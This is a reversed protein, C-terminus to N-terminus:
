RKKRSRRQRRRYAVLPKGTLEYATIIFVSDPEDDIVYIVRLYRGGRTQGIAVRAGDLGPRDEGPSRVVDEAESETVRHRRLHVLGTDPDRYFRFRVQDGWGAVPPAERMMM